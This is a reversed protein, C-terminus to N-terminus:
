APKGKVMQRRTYELRAVIGLFILWAYLNKTQTLVREANSHIYTIVMAVTVGILFAGIPTRRYVRIGRAAWFTTVGIFLLYTYFGPYGNEALMLWYHSEPQPHVEDPDVNMGRSRTWDDIVDGYSYPSNAMIVFNNWGVGTPSDHLMEMASTNLMTRLEASAANKDDGFRMILTPLAMLLGIFGLVAISLM